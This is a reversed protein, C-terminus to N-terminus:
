QEIWGQVTLKTERCVGFVSRQFLIQSCSEVVGMWQGVIGSTRTQTNVLLQTCNSSPGSIIVKQENPFRERAQHWIIRRLITGPHVKRPLCAPFRKDPM